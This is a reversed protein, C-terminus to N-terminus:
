KFYAWVGFFFIALFARGTLKHIWNYIRVSIPLSTPHWKSEMGLDFM